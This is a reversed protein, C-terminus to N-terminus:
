PREEFRNKKARGQITLAAHQLCKEKGLQSSTLSQWNLPSSPCQLPPVHSLSRAEMKWCARKYRASVPKTHSPHPVSWRKSLQLRCVRALNEAMWPAAGFFSATAWVSQSRYVRNLLNRQRWCLELRLWLRELSTQTKSKPTTHNHSYM